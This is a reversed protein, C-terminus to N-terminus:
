KEPTTEQAAWLTSYVGNSNVLQEHTGPKEALHGDKLVIIQDIFGDALDVGGVCEGSVM